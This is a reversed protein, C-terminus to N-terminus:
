QFMYELLMNDPNLLACCCYVIVVNVMCRSSIRRLVLVNKVPKCLFHGCEM